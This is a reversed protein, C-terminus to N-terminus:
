NGGILESLLVEYFMIHSNIQEKNLKASSIALGSEDKPYNLDCQKMLNRFDTLSFARPRIKFPNNYGLQEFRGDYIFVKSQNHLQTVLAFYLSNQNTSRQM